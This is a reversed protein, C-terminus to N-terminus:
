PHPHKACDGATPLGAKFATRCVRCAGDTLAAIDCQECHTGWRKIIGDARRALDYAARDRFVRNAVLGLKCTECWDHAAFGKETRAAKPKGAAYSLGARVAKM